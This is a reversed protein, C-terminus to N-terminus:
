FHSMGFSLHKEDTLTSIIYQGVEKLPSVLGTLSRTGAFKALIEFTDFSKCTKAEPLKNAIKEVEREKAAEGFLDEVLVKSLSSSSHSLFTPKLQSAWFNGKTISCSFVGLNSHARESVGNAFM